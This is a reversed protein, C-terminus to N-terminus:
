RLLSVIWPQEKYLMAAEATAEKIDEVYKSFKYEEMKPYKERKIKSWCHKTRLREWYLDMAVIDILALMYSIHQALHDLGLEGFSRTTVLSDVITLDPHTTVHKSWWGGPNVQDLLRYKLTKCFYREMCVLDDIKKKARWAEQIEWEHIRSEHMGDHRQMELLNCLSYIRPRYKQTLVFEM